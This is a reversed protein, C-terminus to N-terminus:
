ERYPPARPAVKLSDIHTVGKLDQKVRAREIKHKANDDANYQSYTCNPAQELTCIFDLIRLSYLDIRWALPLAARTGGQHTCQPGQLVPIITESSAHFPRAVRVILPPVEHRAALRQQALGM